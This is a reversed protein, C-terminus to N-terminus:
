EIANESETLHRLITDVLADGIERRLHEMGKRLVLERYEADADADRELNKKALDILQQDTPPTTM